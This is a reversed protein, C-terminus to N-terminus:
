SKTKAIADMVGAVKQPIANLTRVLNTVPAMLTGLMKAYLEEKSPLKALNQIDKEGILKGDLFGGKLVLAPVEEQFKSLIKALAVPDSYGTVIATPGKLLSEFQLGQEETLAKLALTNKVVAMEANSKRIQARLDTMESVKMGRYETVFTHTAKAFKDKLQSVAERKETRNM